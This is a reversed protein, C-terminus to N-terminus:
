QVGRADYWVVDFSIEPSFFARPLGDGDTHIRAGDEWVAEWGEESRKISSLARPSLLATVPLLLGSLREAETPISLEGYRVTAEGTPAGEGTCLAEIEMGALADPALYVVRVARSEGASRVEVKATFERREGTEPSTMSGRLEAAFDSTGFALPDPAHEGCACFM